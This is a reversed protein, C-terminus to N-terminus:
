KAKLEDMLEGLRKWQDNTFLASQYFLSYVLEKNDTEFVPKNNLCYRYTNTEHYHEITPIFTM